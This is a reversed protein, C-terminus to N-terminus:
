DDTLQMIGSNEKFLKSPLGPKNRSACCDSGM